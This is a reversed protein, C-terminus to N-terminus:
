VFRLSELERTAQDLGAQADRSAAALPAFYRDGLDRLASAIAPPLTRDLQSAAEALVADANTGVQVSKTKTPALASGLKEGAVSGAAGAVLGGVVVAGPGLPALVVAAMAGMLLGGLSGGTRRYFVEETIAITDFRAAVEPVALGGFAGLMRDFEAQFGALVPGADEELVAALEERVVEGIAAHWGPGAGGGRREVAESADLVLREIRTLARAQVRRAIGPALRELTAQAEAIRADLAVFTGRLASLTPVETSSAPPAVLLEDLVTNFRQKPAQRKLSCADRTLVAGLQEYLAPMGSQEFLAVDGTRIAERAVDVSVFAVNAGGLTAELGCAALQEDLWQQQEARSRPGKPRLARIIRGDPTEDLVREDCRTVVIMVPKQRRVALDILEPMDSARLPSGSSTTYIVLEAHDAYRQALAQNAATMSHIGPTDVWAMGGLAFTQIERTCETPSARFAPPDMEVPEPLAEPADSTAHRLFRVPRGGYPGTVPHELGALFNGLTSKGCKVKGYVLVILSRDFHDLFTRGSLMVQLREGWARVGQELAQVNSELLAALPHESAEPRRGVLGRALRQLVVMAREERNAVEAEFDRLDHEVRRLADLLIAPAQIPHIPTTM